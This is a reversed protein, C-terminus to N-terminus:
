LCLIIHIYFLTQNGPIVAKCGKVSCFRASGDVEDSSRGQSLEATESSSQRDSSSVEMQQDQVPTVQLSEIVRQEEDNDDSVEEGHRNADPTPPIQLHSSQKQSASLDHYHNNHDTVAQNPLIASSPVSVPTSPNRPTLANALESSTSTQHPMLSPLHHPSTPSVEGSFLRPDIAHNWTSLSSLALTSSTSPRLDQISDILLYNGNCPSFMLLWTYLTALRIQRTVSDSNCVQRSQGGANVWTIPQPGHDILPMETDKGNRASVATAIAAKELKRRARKTNAYVRHRSRCADCMKNTDDSTLTETCGKVSCQKLADQPCGPHQQVDQIVPHHNPFGLSPTYYVGSEDQTSM